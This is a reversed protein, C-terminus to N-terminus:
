VGEVFSAQLTGYCADMAEGCFEAYGASDQGYLEISGFAAGVGAVEACRRDFGRVWAVYDHDLL